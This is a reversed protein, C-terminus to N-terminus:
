YRTQLVCGGVSAWICQVVPFHTSKVVEDLLMLICRAHHHTCAAVPVAAAAPPAPSSPLGSCQAVGELRRCAASADGCCLTRGQRRLAVLAPRTNLTLTCLVCILRSDDNAQSKVKFPKGLHCVSFICRVQTSPSKIVHFSHAEAHKCCEAHRRM